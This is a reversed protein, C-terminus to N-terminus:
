WSTGKAWTKKCVLLTDTRGLSTVAVSQWATVKRPGSSPKREVSTEVHQRRAEPALARNFEFMSVLM